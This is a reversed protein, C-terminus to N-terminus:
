CRGYWPLRFSWGAWHGTELLSWYCSAQSPIPVLRLCCYRRSCQRLMAELLRQSLPKKVWFHYGQIQVHTRILLARHVLPEQYTAADVAALMGRGARSGTREAAAQPWKGTDRKSRICRIMIVSAHTWVPESSHHEPRSRYGIKKRFRAINRSLARTQDLAITQTQVQAWLRSSYSRNNEKSVIESLVAGLPTVKHRKFCSERGTFDKMGFSRLFLWTFCNRRVPFEVWVSCPAWYKHVEATKQLLKFCVPTFCEYVWFAPLSWRAELCQLLLPSPQSSCAQGHPDPFSGGISHLGWCTLPATWARRRPVLICWKCTM